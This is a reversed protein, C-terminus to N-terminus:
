GGLARGGLTEAAAYFEPETVDAARDMFPQPAQRSTGDHVYHSYNATPGTEGRMTSSGPGGDFESTISGRMFGTRVPSNVKGLAETRLTSARVLAYVQRGLEDGAADFDAALADLDGM